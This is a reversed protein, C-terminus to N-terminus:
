SSIVNLRQLTWYPSQSHVITGMKSAQTYFLAANPSILQILTM